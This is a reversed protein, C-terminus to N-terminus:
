KKRIHSCVQRFYHGFFNVKLNLSLFNHYFWFVDFRSLETFLVRQLGRFQSDYMHDCKAILIVQFYLTLKGLYHDRSEVLIEARLFRFLLQFYKPRPLESPSKVDAGDELLSRM